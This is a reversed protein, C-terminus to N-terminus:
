KRRQKSLSVQIARLQERRLSGQLKIPSLGLGPASGEQDQELELLPLKDGNKWRPDGGGANSDAERGGTGGDAAAQKEGSGGGGTAAAAQTGEQEIDCRGWLMGGDGRDRASQRNLRSVVASAICGATYYANREVTSQDLKAGSRRAPPADARLPTLSPFRVRANSKAAGRESESKVELRVRRKAELAQKYRLAGMESHGM